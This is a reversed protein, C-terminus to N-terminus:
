DEPLGSFGYRLRDRGQIRIATTKPRAIIGPNPGTVLSRSAGTARNLALLSDSSGIPTTAASGKLPISPTRPLAIQGPPGSAGLLHSATNKFALWSLGCAGVTTGAVLGLFVALLSVGRNSITLIGPRVSALVEDINIAGPDMIKSLPGTQLVVSEWAPTSAVVTVITGEAIEGVAYLTSDIEEINSGILRPGRVIPNSLASPLFLGFVLVTKIITQYKM